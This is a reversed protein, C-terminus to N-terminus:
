RVFGPRRRPRPAPSPRTTALWPSLQRLQRGHRVFVSAFNSEDRPRPACLSDAEGDRARQRQATHAHDDGRCGIADMLTSRLQTYKAGVRMGEHRIQAVFECHSAQDVLGQGEPSPARSGQASTPIVENFVRAPGPAPNSERRGPSPEPVPACVRSGAPHRGMLAGRCRTQDGTVTSLLPPVVEIFFVMRPPPHM